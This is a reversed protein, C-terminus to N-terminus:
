ILLNNMPIRLFYSGADKLEWLEQYARALEEKSYADSLAKLKKRCKRQSIIRIFLRLSISLATMWFM